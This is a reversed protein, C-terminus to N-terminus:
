KLYTRIVEILEAAGQARESQDTIASSAVHEEIHDQIVELMLGNIAGRTAAILQLTETCGQESELAREVAEVQGRIRKVRNLLKNKNRATHGM